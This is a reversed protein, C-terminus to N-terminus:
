LNQRNANDEAEIVVRELDNFSFPQLNPLPDDVIINKANSTFAIMTSLKALERESRELRDYVSDPKFHIVPVDIVVEASPQSCIVSTRQMWLSARKPIQDMSPTIYRDRRVGGFINEVHIQGGANISLEIRDCYPIDLKM